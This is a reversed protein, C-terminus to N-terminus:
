SPINRDTEHRLRKYICARIRASTQQGQHTTSEAFTPNRRGDGFGRKVFVPFQNGGGHQHRHDHALGTGGHQQGLAGRVQAVM